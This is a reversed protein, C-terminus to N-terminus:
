QATTCSCLHQNCTQPTRCHCNQHPVRPKLGHLLHKLRAASSATWRFFSMAERVAGQQFVDQPEVERTQCILVWM